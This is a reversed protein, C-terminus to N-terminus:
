SKQWRCTLEIESQLLEASINRASYKWGPWGRYSEANELKMDPLRLGTEECRITGGSGPEMYIELCYLKVTGATRLQDSLEEQGHRYLNVFLGKWQYSIEIERSQSPEIRPLFFVCAL